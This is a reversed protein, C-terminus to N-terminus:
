SQTSAKYEKPIEFVFERKTSKNGEVGPEKKAFIREETIKPQGTHADKSTLQRFLKFKFNRIATKCKSNDCKVTVKIQEGPYFQNQQVFVETTSKSGLLGM